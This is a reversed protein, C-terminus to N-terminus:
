RVESFFIRFSVGFLSPRLCDLQGPPWPSSLCPRGAPAQVGVHPQPYGVTHLNQNGADEHTLCSTPPNWAACCASQAVGVQVISRSQFGTTRWSILCCLQNQSKRGDANRKAPKKVRNAANTPRLTACFCCITRGFAM